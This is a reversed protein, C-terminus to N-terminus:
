YKLIKRTVSSKSDELRILYIGNAVQRKAMDRGDWSILGKATSLQQSYIKQGKLNYIALRADSSRDGDIKINISNGFPNPYVSLNLAAPVITNQEISVEPHLEPLLQQLLNRVGNAQMFYLPIGFFVLSGHNDHRFALTRGNGVASETMTATYLPNTANEFTYVMPLMGNWVANLKQPDPLLQPYDDSEASILSASNDYFLELGGAFRDMWSESLASASKWGSIVLKGGGLLYGGLTSLSSMLNNTSFDDDHWLVMAYQGLTSLDPAGMSEYDWSDYIIPALMDAYFLDVMEDTPSIGTGTGDRTEDVVLLNYAFSFEVPSADAINSPMSEYGEDDLAKIAYQYSTGNQVEEDYYVTGSVIQSNVIQWASSPDTRRYVNYGTAGPFGDWEVLVIGNSSMCNSIHPLVQSKGRLIVWNNPDLDISSIMGANAYDVLNVYAGPSAMVLLSDSGTSHNIRIPFDLYFDTATPSTSTAIVKLSPPNQKTYFAIEISPIGPSYIWQQFFQQLDLGSIQEAMAQFESTIANHNRYTAYWTQILEFFQADGMKLRLMHLVSAGKEYSPPSFYSNFSPDYVTKAGNTNEYSIYYNHYSSQIYQTAADWGLQKDVWLHESYTAFGESLWVDAFTLFSVSNGFWQHALEHAVILEYAGNGTLIFNGLTTMTQHEMAGFTSMSVVAQGYKEFPYEGFIEGFYDIMAPLNAFDVQANNYQNPMVFNQILLDGAYQEFELYPGATICVLYTTMPNHGIWSTTSTGDGHNVIGQRLGNSAVKWDSRMRIHLDVVAKDWPHDYCPWWYRGADPDSITFVTNTSFFMGIQYVNPSLVPYGSYTVKTTFDQGAVVNLPINIIGNQHTFTVPVDDVLVESVTLNWLNYQISSLAEEAHVDAIVYGSIYRSVDNIQLNIEYKQIDFGTASDAKAEYAGIGQMASLDIYKHRQSPRMQEPIARLIGFGCIMMVAMLAQTFYRM